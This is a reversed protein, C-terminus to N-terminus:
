PHHHFTDVDNLAVLLGSTLHHLPANHFFLCRNMNGIDHQNAWPAVPGCAGPPSLQFVAPPQPGALATALDDISLCISPAQVSPVIVPVVCFRSQGRSSSAT